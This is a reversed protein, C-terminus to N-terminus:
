LAALEKYSGACTALPLNSTAAMDVKLFISMCDGQTQGVPRVRREERNVVAVSALLNGFERRLM